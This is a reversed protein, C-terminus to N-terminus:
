NNGPYLPYDAPFFYHMLLYVADQDDFKGDSNADTEGYIEYDNPFMYYFLLRVADRDDFVEDNDFDGNLWILEFKATYVVDGQCTTIEKDWGVFKYSGKEDKEKIPNQPVEVTDGYLYEKKSIVTGDDMQFTVTAKVIEVDITTQANGLAITVSDKGIKSNDFGTATAETMDLMQKSGDTYTVLLRGGTLDLKESKQVYETKTPMQFVQLSKVKKGEIAKIETFNVSSLPIWGKDIKVWMDDAIDDSWKEVLVLDGKAKTGVSKADSSASERVTVTDSTVRCWMPFYQKIVDNYNTNPMSIWGGEFRGWILDNGNSDQGGVVVKTVTIKDGKKLQGIVKHYTYPGSRVNGKDATITLDLSVGVDEVPIVVPTGTPTKWHAYLMTGTEMTEDLREVKTGGDRATYWGDFVYTVINGTEDPGTPAKKIITRIHTPDTIDFGHVKYDTTGGAANMFVYRYRDHEPNWQNVYKNNVYVETEVIRRAMLVYKKGATSWLMMGYAIGAGMDGELVAKKLNGNGDTWNAGCNYSFSVLADYQNQTLTLNNEKIFDNVEKEFYNLENRLLEEAYEETIPNNQYYEEMGKPCESGYGISWQKYDWYALERFGEMLKLLAMMDDSIKMTAAAPAPDTALVSLPMATASLLMLVALIGCIVKRMILDRREFDSKLDNYWFIDFIALTMRLCINCTTVM